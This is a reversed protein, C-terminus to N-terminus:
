IDNQILKIMLIQSFTVIINLLKGNYSLYWLTLIIKFLYPMFAFLIYSFCLVSSIYPLMNQVHYDTSGQYRDVSYDCIRVNLSTGTLKLHLFKNIKQFTFNLRMNSLYLPYTFWGSLLRAYWVMNIHIYPFTYRELFYRKM